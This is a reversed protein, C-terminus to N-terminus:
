LAHLQEVAGAGVFENYGSLIVYVAFYCFIAASAMYSYRLLKDGLLKGGHGILPSATYEIPRCAEADSRAMLYGNGSVPGQECLCAVLPSPPFGHDVDDRMRFVEYFVKGVCDLASCGLLYRAVPNVSVIRGQINMAVIGDGVSQLIVDSREKEAVSNRLAVSLEEHPAHVSLGLMASFVLAMTALDLVGDVYALSPPLFGALAM